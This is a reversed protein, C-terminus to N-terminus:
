SSVMVAVTAEELALLAQQTIKEAFIDSTDDFVIGGTDVIQFNYGNWMGTRYTRDRTIGPDDHIIAGDRYSDSLKNVITSKGTNPRGIIAITPLKGAPVAVSDDDQNDGYKALMKLMYEPLHSPEESYESEDLEHLRKKQKPKLFEEEELREKEENLEVFFEEEWQQYLEKMGDDTSQTSLENETTSSCTLYTLKKRIDIGALIARSEVGATGRFYNLTSEKDLYWTQHHFGCVLKWTFLASFIFIM